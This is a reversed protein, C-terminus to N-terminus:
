TTHKQHMELINFNYKIHMNQMYLFYQILKLNKLL